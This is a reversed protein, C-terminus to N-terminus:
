GADGIGPFWVQRTNGEQDEDALEDQQSVVSLCQVVNRGHRRTRKPLSHRANSEM